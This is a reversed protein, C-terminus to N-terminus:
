DLVVAFALGDHGKAGTTQIATARVRPEAGLLELFRRSGRASPDDGPDAVRGGRVVNDAVILTGPRSLRLAWPLYEPYTQKDANIFILDFPGRGEAELQPLTELAPGVRVEVTDGLGARGLSGRAVEAYRPEVELTVLSGGDPLGRALAITSLGGLTGLELVRRAGTIRVLLELLRAQTRSVEIAPLGGARAADHAGDIAPDDGLLLAELLADVAGPDQVARPGPPDGPGRPHSESSM